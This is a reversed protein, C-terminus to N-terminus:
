IARRFLGTVTNMKENSAFAPHPQFLVGKKIPIDYVSTVVDAGEVDDPLRNGQADLYYPEVLREAVRPILTYPRALYHYGYLPEYISYTFPTEDTSYSSAPDLYKPSRQTFATYFVNEAIEDKPYPSNVPREGCGAVVVVVMLMAALRWLRPM